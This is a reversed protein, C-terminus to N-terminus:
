VAKQVVDKRYMEKGRVMCVERAIIIIIITHIITHTNLRITHHQHVGCVSKNQRVNIQSHPTWVKTPTVYLNGM